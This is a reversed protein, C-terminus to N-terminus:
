LGAARRVEDDDMWPMDLHEALVAAHGDCLLYVRRADLVLVGRDARRPCPAPPPLPGSGTGVLSHGMECCVGTAVLERLMRVSQGSWPM